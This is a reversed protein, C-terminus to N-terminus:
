KTTYRFGRDVLRGHGSPFIDLWRSHLRVLEKETVRACYLSTVLLILGICASWMLGQASQSKTDPFSVDLACPSLNPITSLILSGHHPACAVSVDDNGTLTKDTHSHSYFPYYSVIIRHTMAIHVTRSHSCMWICVMWM